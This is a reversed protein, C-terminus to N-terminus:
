SATGPALRDVHARVASESAFATALAGLEPTNRVRAEIMQRTRRGTSVLWAIGLGLGIVAHSTTRTATAVEIAELLAEVAKKIQAGHTSHATTVGARLFWCLAEITAVLPEDRTSDWLGSAGQRALRDAIPDALPPAFSPPSALPQAALPLEQPIM